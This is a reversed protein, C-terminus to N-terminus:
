SVQVWLVPLYADMLASLEFAWACICQFGLTRRGNDVSVTAIQFTENTTDYLSAEDVLAVFDLFLQAYLRHSRLQSELPVGRGTIIKRRFGRAVAVAPDCTVGVMMIRYPQRPEDLQEGRVFYQETKTQPVWGPGLRFKCKHVLRIMAVIQEIYPRWTM